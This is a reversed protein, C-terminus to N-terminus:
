DLKYECKHGKGVCGHIACWGFGRSLCQNKRWNQLRDRRRARSSISFIAIMVIAAWVIAAYGLSLLIFAVPVAHSLM